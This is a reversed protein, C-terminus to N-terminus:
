SFVEGPLERHRTTGEYKSMDEDTSILRFAVARLKLTNAAM